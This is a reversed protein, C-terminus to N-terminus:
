REERSQLFGPRRRHHGIAVVIIEEPRVRYYIRYPFRSISRVRIDGREIRAALPHQAIFEKARRVEAILARGLGPQAEEYFQAAIRLEEEAERLLRIPTM